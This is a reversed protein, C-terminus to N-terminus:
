PKTKPSAATKPPAAIPTGSPMANLSQIKLLRQKRDLAEKNKPNIKLAADNEAMANQMDARTEYIYARYNRYRIESPNAKIAEGYDALAKDYDNVRMEIAARQEYFRAEHPNIKIAESLDALAEPFRQDNTENVARGSYAAALDQTYKRDKEAAKRFGDIAKDWDQDKAAQWAERALKAPEPNGEQQAAKVLGLGLLIVTCFILHKKM